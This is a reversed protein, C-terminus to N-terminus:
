TLRPKPVSESLAPKEAASRVQAEQQQHHQVTQGTKIEADRLQDTKAGDNNLALQQVTEGDPRVQVTQRSIDQFQLAQRGAAVSVTAAFPEGQQDLLGSLRVAFGNALQHQQDRTLDVGMLQTPLREPRLQWLELTNTQEDLRLYTPVVAGNAPLPLPRPLAGEQLLQQKEAQSLQIGGVEDPLTLQSFVPTIRLEPGTETLVVRLRGELQVSPTLFVTVPPTPQGSFLAAELDPFQVRHSAPFGIRALQVEIEARHPELQRRLVAAAEENSLFSDSQAYVRAQQGQLPTPTINDLADAQTQAYALSANM